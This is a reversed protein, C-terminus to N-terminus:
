RKKMWNFKRDSSNGTAKVEGDNDKYRLIGNKRLNGILAQVDGRLQSDNLLVAMLGEGKTASDLTKNVKDLAVNAKDFTLDAKAAASTLSDVGVGIKESSALLNESMKKLNAVTAKLNVTNDEALVEDNIKTLAEALEGIAMDFHKLNDERLISTDFKGIASNLDKLAGSVEDLLDQSKRSIDEASNALNSLTGRKGEMVSGPEIYNGTMVEPQTISIFSDGMLGSVGMTFVSDVPIRFEKYIEADVIVGSADPKLHPDKTVRGIKAGGLRVESGKVIEGAQPFSLTLEYKERFHDKFSGFRLIIGGLVLLGVFLFIGLLLETRNQNM